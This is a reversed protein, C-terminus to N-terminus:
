EQSGLEDSTSNALEMNFDYDECPTLIADEIKVNKPDGLVISTYRYVLAGDKLFYNPVEVDGEKLNVKKRNNIADFAGTKQNVKPGITENIQINFNKGAIVPADIGLIALEHGKDNKTYTLKTVNIGLNELIDKAEGSIWAITPKNSGTFRKDSSNLLAVVNINASPLIQAFALSYKGGAIKRVSQIQANTKM